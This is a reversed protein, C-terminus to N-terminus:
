PATGLIKQLDEPTAAGPGSDGEIVEQAVSPSDPGVKWTVPTAVEDTASEDRPELPVAHPESTEGAAGVPESGLRLHSGLDYRPVTQILWQQVPRQLVNSM